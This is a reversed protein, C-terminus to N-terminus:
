VKDPPNMRLRAAIIRKMKMIEASPDSLSDLKKRWQVPTCGTVREFARSFTRSTLFGFQYCPIRSSYMSQAYELAYNIRVHEILEHPTLGYYSKIVDHLHSHSISIDDCLRNVDFSPNAAHQLIHATISEIKNMATTHPIKELYATIVHYIVM